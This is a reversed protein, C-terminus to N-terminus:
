VDLPIIKAAAGQATIELLAVSIPLKFRRRGASGPNLFLVDDRYEVSPKHSHGFVLVQHGNGEMGIQKIDHILFISSHGVLVTATEPLKGALGTKDNNGRVAVVPGIRELSVLIEDSGIDGAHLIMDVGNLANIAETRLLGHTDSIVGFLM